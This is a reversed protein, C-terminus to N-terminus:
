CIADRCKFIDSCNTIIMRENKRMRLDLENHQREREERELVM